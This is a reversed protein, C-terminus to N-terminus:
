PMGASHQIGPPTTAPPAWIHGAATSNDSLMPWASCCRQCILRESAYLTQKSSTCLKAGSIYVCATNLGLSPCGLSLPFGALLRVLLSMISEPLKSGPCLNYKCGSLYARAEALRTPHMANIRVTCCEEYSAVTCPQGSSTKSGWCMWSALTSAQLM